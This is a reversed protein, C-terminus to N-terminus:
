QQVWVHKLIQMPIPPVFYGQVKPKVLFGGDLPFWLPIVPVDRLIIREAQQYLASRIEPDQEVRAKELVSDVTTSEYASHNMSSESHFLTDLFNHPDIYDANWSIGGFMQLSKDNLEQLYVEWETQRVKVKVGLEREWTNTIFRFSESLMGTTGPLTMVLEYSPVTGGEQTYGSSSVLEEALELDYKLGVTDESHSPFGPPLIRYAPVVSGNKITIAIQEKDIAYFLARRLDLNDLPPDMVNLGIYAVQFAPQGIIMEDKLSNNEDRMAKVHGASLELIDIEDNEYMSMGDGDFVYVVEDIFPGNNIYHDNRILRISKHTVWDDLMFPGTGNFSRLPTHGGGKTTDVVAAVPNTMKGLFYPKPEDLEFTIEQEGVVEVGVVNLDYGLIKERVGVIDDLYTAATPSQLAPDTAREISAKVDHATLRRGDHFTIGERLFFRYKTGGDSIEWRSALEPVITMDKGYTVLGNFIELAIQASRSDQVLHPDLTTIDAWLLTISGGKPNEQLSSSEAIGEVTEMSENSVEQSTCTILLACLMGLAILSLRHKYPFLRFRIIFAM